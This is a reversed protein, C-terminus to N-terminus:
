VANPYGIAMVFSNLESQWRERAPHDNTGRRSFYLSHVTGRASCGYSENLPLTRM